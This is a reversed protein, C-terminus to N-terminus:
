VTIEPDVRQVQEFRHTMKKATRKARRAPGRRRRTEGGLFFGDCEAIASPARTSCDSGGDLLPMPVADDEADAWSQIRDVRDERVSDLAIRVPLTKSRRRPPVTLHQSPAHEAFVHASVNSPLPFRIRVGDKLVIPRMEDPTSMEMLPSNRYRDVQEQFGQHAQSWEVDGAKSGPSNWDDFGDFHVMFRRAEKGSVLNVFAYGFPTNKRFKIPLYVFDYKCAFGEDDLLELLTTRNFSSPINRLIVTTREAATPSSEASNEGYEDVRCLTCVPLRCCPEEPPNPLSSATSSSYSSSSSARSIATGPVFELELSRRRQDIIAEIKAPASRTHRMVDGYCEDAEVEIFSNKIWIKAM